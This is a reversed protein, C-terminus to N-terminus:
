RRFLLLATGKRAGGGGFGAGCEGTVSVPRESRAVDLGVCALRFAADRGARARRQWECVAVERQGAGTARADSTILGAPQAFFDRLTRVVEDPQDVQAFHSSRELWVLSAEPVLKQLAQGVAPPVIRDKRAYLLLLPVPFSVDGRRRRDLESVFRALDEPALTKTSIDSSPAHARMRRSHLEM